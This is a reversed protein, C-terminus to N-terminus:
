DDDSANMDSFLSIQGGSNEILPVRAGHRIPQTLRHSAVEELIGRRCLRPQLWREKWWDAIRETSRVGGGMPILYDPRSDLGLLYERFNRALAVAYVLRQNGHSLLDDSPLNLRDLGERIKRLRPNVGEGFISHVRMGGETQSLWASIAEVTDPSFQFTGYGETRGLLRYRVSEGKRGGIPECPIAIRTYQTPEAGYLSTTGLLVLHPNRVSPRGAMSSAIVSSANAYRDGYAEVVEPSAVLMAVLKGGLLGSYPAVAGSVGIDAMAVGVRDSKARRVLSQVAQRGEPQRLYRKLTEPTPKGKEQQFMQRVKLLMSLTEARKSRFLPTEAQKKWDLEEGGQDDYQKHDRPDALRRHEERQEKAYNELWLISEFTPHSIINRTIPSASSDLLDDQYIGKLGDEILRLLWDVHKESADQQLADVFGESSWGIWEDRVSIQVASSALAAIGIVPRLDNAADRILILISRGPVSRYPNAWTHRFYRWIDRVALGTADCVEEGKIVQIYPQIAAKLDRSLSLSLERGDRMLSFISVWKGKHLRRREMSRLFDQVAPTRLQRNREVHLRARVQEREGLANDGLQNKQYIQVIKKKIRCNWGHLILDSLILAAAKAGASGKEHSQILTWRIEEMAAIMAREDRVESAIAMRRAITLFKASEIADNLAPSFDIWKIRM